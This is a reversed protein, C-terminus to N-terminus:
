TKHSATNLSTETTICTNTIRKELGEHSPMAVNRNDTAVNTGYGITQKLFVFMESNTIWQVMQAKGGAGSKQM